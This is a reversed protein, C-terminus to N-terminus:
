LRTSLTDFSHLLMVELALTPNINRQILNQTTLIARILKEIQADSYYRAIKALEDKEDRHILLDQSCGQKILLLDRYWSLLADLSDQAKDLSEAQRFIPM